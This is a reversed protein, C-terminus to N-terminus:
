PGDSQAGWTAAATEAELSAGNARRLSLGLRRHAGDINLVCVRVTEGECVVNRPHLFTGEALESIHILGELGDELRAFAGFNVVSTVVGEIVQGVTYRQEVTAWPDPTLRKLSLAVRNHGPDVSMVQVQVAQGVRLLDAPRNVRGWSIESIHLLGEIGGLDVFAGFSCVNTVTGPRVQGPALQSLLQERRVGAANALRESVVFRARARDIEIVKAPCCSGARRNLEARRDDENLQPTLGILHSSPMFGRLGKWDILLGGRNCGVVQVDIAEGAEFARQAADWQAVPDDRRQVDNPARGSQRVDPTQAEVDNLLSQWYAENMTLDPISETAM